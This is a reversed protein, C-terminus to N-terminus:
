EGNGCSKAGEGGVEAPPGSKAEDTRGGAEVAAGPKAEDTREGARGGPEIREETGPKEGKRLVRTGMLLKIGGAILVLAVIGTQLFGRIEYVLGYPVFKMVLPSVLRELFVLCGVAILGWGVWRPHTELWNLLSFGEVGKIEGKEEAEEARHFADFLSYFWVVPLIFLFLSMNLWGMFFITFFFITMLQVGQHLYGLYMHGAGPVLSLAAAIMKRNQFVDYDGHELGGAQGNDGTTGFNVRELLSFADVLAFFWIIMLAFPLVILLEGWNVLSALGAVGVIAGCFLALFVLSRRTFGLYFHALGPLFSLVFTVLKSKKNMM